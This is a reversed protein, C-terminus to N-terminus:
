SCTRAGVKGGLVGMVPCYQHLGRSLQVSSVTAWSFSPLIYLFLLLLLLLLFFSSFLSVFFFSSSSFFFFFSFLLFLLLRFIFSFSSFIKRENTRILYLGIRIKLPCFFPSYMSRKVNLLVPNQTSKILTLMM